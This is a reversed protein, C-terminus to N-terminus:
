TKTPCEWGSNTFSRRSRRWAPRERMSCRCCSRDRSGSFRCPLRPRAAPTKFRRWLAPCRRCKSIPHCGRWRTLPYLGLEDLTKTAGEGGDAVQKSFKAMGRLGAEVDTLSAGSQEAAFALEQLKSASVGTRGAADDLEAGAKAFAVAAGVLPAVIASGAGILAGGTAAISAGFNKLRTQVGKLTQQLKSDDGMIEIFARGARIAGSTAAM